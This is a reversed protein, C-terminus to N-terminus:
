NFGVFGVLSLWVWGFGILGLWVLGSGVLSSEVRDSRLIGKHTKWLSKVRGSRVLVLCVSGFRTLGWRVQGVGVLSM